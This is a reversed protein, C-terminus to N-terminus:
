RSAPRRVQLGIKAAAEEKISPLIDDETFPLKDPGTVLLFYHTGDDSLQYYYDGLSNGSQLKVFGAVDDGLEELRKPYHGNLIKYYEIKKVFDPLQHESLMKTQAIIFGGTPNSMQKFLYGYISFTVTIGAAGIATMVLGGQKRRTIGFVMCVLGILVGLLPVFSLFAVVYHFWSLKKQTELTADV